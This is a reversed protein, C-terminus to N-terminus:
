ASHPDMLEELTMIAITKLRDKPLSKDQLELDKLVYALASSRMKEFATRREEQTYIPGKIKAKLAARMGIHEGILQILMENDM